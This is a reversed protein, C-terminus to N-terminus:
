REGNVTRREGHVPSVDDWMLAQLLARAREQHADGATYRIGSIIRAGGEREEDAADVAVQDVQVDFFAHGDPPGGAAPTARGKVYYAMGEDVMVLTVIGNSTLHRSTRSTDYTALRLRGADRAVVEFASLMAPHPRGDADVSCIILATGEAAPARGADLWALLADPLRDGVVRSM